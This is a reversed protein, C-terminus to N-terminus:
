TSSGRGYTWHAGSSSPSAWSTTSRTRITAGATAMIVDSRVAHAKEPRIEPEPNALAFVIPEEGDLRDDRAHGCRWRCGVFVDAGVMADALTRCSTERAFLAKYKNMGKTRGAHIVGTTDVM